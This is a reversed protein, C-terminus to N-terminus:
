NVNNRIPFNLEFTSCSSLRVTEQFPNQEFNSTGGYKNVACQSNRGSCVRHVVDPTCLYWAGKM